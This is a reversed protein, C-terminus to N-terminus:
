IHILSLWPIAGIHDEHGHTIVLAEVRDWKDDLYSFDPLILDVGPEGSSPFLVGCDIILLRGEYEFVTMNRGIESIGGLAVIRLSGKPQKPPKPLRQTLDAGQMAKLAGKRRDGGRGRGRGKGGGNNNRSGGNNNSNNGNGRGRGRSRRNRNRNGGGNNNKNGGNDASGNNDNGDSNNNANHNANNKAVGGDNFVTAAEANSVATNDSQAEAEASPPAAKRTVKRGRSRQETM